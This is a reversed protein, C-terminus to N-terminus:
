RACAMFHRFSGIITCVEVPDTNLDMDHRSAVAKVPGSLSSELFNRFIPSRGYHALLHLFTYTGKAFSALSQQHQVEERM